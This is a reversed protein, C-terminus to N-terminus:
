WDAKTRNRTNLIDEVALRHLKKHEGLLQIVDWSLGNVNIWRCKVWKQQPKALFDGLTDNTLRVESIRDQSFDVVAIECEAHLNPMSAHGGDPKSTDVGPEAGPRWGPRSESFEEFDEVTRFTTARRRLSPSGFGLTDVRIVGGVGSGGGVQSNVNPPGDGASVALQPLGGIGAGGSSGRGRGIFGGAGNSTGGTFEGGSGTGSGEGGPSYHVHYPRLGTAAGTSPAPPPSTTTAGVGAPTGTATPTPTNASATAAPAGAVGDADEPALQSGAVVGAGTSSGYIADTSQSSSAPASPTSGEEDISSLVRPGEFSTGSM